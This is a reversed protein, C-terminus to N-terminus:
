RQKEKKRENRWKRKGEIKRGKEEEEEEGKQGDRTEKHRKKKVEKTRSRMQRSKRRRLKNGVDGYGRFIIKKHGKRFNGRDNKVEAENKHSGKKSEM